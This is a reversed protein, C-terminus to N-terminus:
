RFLLNKAASMIVPLRMMIAVGWMVLLGMAVAIQVMAGVLQALGDSAAGGSFFLASIVITLILLALLSLYYGLAAFLALFAIFAFIGKM